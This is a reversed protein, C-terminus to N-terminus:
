AKKGSQEANNQAIRIIGKLIKAMADLSTWEFPGHPLSYGADLNPTPIGMFSLNAGDTGGRVYQIDTNLGEEKLADQALKLINPHKDLVQKMNKYQPTLTLEIKSGPYKLQKESIIAKLLEAQQNIGEESFSRIIAKASAKELDANLSTFCIFDEKRCTTEPLKSEPWAAIIDSLIRVPNQMIDKAMGTHAMVGKVKITAAFANFTEAVIGDGCEGDLTFAFDAKFNDKEFHKTGFGIEEDPTFAIKIEGHKIEPHKLLYELMVMIISIGAKDDAGLLTDGSATVIDHGICDNLAPSMEPTIIIHHEQNVIINGGQYNKHLQPKVTRGKTGGPFTDMHAIFGIVPAKHKINAPLTATIHCHETLIIDKLGLYELDKKLIKAFDFQTPTSPSLNTDEESGSEIQVYKTFIEFLRQKFQEM